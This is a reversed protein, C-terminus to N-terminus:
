AGQRDLRADESRRESMRSLQDKSQEAVVFQWVTLALLLGLTAVTGTLISITRRQSVAGEEARERREREIDARYREREAKRQEELAALRAQEQMRAAEELRHRAEAERRAANLGALLFEHDGLTLDSRGHSWALADELAAGRLLYDDSRGSVDWREVFEALRQEKEKERLWKHDYVEAFVLNRVRLLMDGHEGRAEAA